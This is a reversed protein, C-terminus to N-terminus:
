GEPTLKRGGPPGLHAEPARQPALDAQPPREPRFLPIAHLARPVTKLGEQRIKPGNQTSKGGRPSPGPPCKQLSKQSTLPSLCFSLMKRISSLKKPGIEIRYKTRQQRGQQTAPAVACVCFHQFLMPKQPDCAVHAKKECCGFCDFKLPCAYCFVISFLDLCLVCPVLM